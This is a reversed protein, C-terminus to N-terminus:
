DNNVKNKVKLNYHSLLYFSALGSFESIESFIKEMELRSIDKVKKKNKFYYYAVIKKLFLDDLPTFNIRRFGRVLVYEATWQGVGKIRKLEQILLKDDLQNLEKFNLKGEIIQRSLRRIYEGKRQSLGCSQFENDKAVALRKPNPFAFYKIKGIKIFSGFKKIFRNEIIITLNYSLQQEIIARVLSEFYTPTAPFTLGQLDRIVKKLVKDRKAKQYFKNLDIDLNLVKKVKEIIWKLNNAKRQFTLPIYIKIEPNIISNALVVVPLVVNDRELVLFFKNRDFAYEYIEFGPYSNRLDQVTLFLNFPQKLKIKELIFFDDLLDTM